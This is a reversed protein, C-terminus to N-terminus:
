SSEPRTRGRSGTSGFFTKLEEEEIYGDGSTDIQNFIQQMEDGGSEQDKLDETYDEELKLGKKSKSLSLKKSSRNLAFVSLVISICILQRM